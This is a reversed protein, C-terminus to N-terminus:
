SAEAESCCGTWAAISPALCANTENEDVSSGSEKSDRISNMCAVLAAQQPQCQTECASAQGNGDGEEQPMYKANEVLTEIVSSSM